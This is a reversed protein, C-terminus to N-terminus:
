YENVYLKEIVFDSLIIGKRSLVFNNVIRKLYGESELELLQKFIDLYFNFKIHEYNIGDKTRLRTLIYENFKDINQLIEKEYFDKSHDIFSIYQILNSVNWQRSDIDFSHASPGIGLYPVDKWYNSNHKSEFNPKCYNSIEYQDFGNMTLFDMTLEFQDIFEDENIDPIIRAKLKRYFLTNRVISLGYASIHNINLDISSKLSSLYSESNFGPIGFILDISINKFGILKALDIAKHIEDANHSRGLFKLIDNNFSQVGISLRNIGLEYISNLYNEDLDEPNAEITIEAIPNLKFNTRVVSLLDFIHKSSLLSPTGGGFYITDIISNKLYSKRILLEKVESKILNDVNVSNSVTFFDCYNCKKHCFPIHFYIGSM